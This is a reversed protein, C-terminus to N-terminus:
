QFYSLEFGREFWGTLALNRIISIDNEKALEKKNKKYSKNFHNKFITNVIFCAIIVDPILVCDSVAKM